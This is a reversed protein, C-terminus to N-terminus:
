TENKTYIGSSLVDPEPPEHRPPTITTSCPYTSTSATAGSAPSRSPVHHAEPFAFYTTADDFGRELCAVAEPFQKFYQLRFAKLSRKADDLTDAHLV